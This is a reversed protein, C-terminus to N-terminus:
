AQPALAPGAPSLDFELELLQKSERFRPTGLKLPGVQGTLDVHGQKCCNLEWGEIKVMSLMAVEKPVPFADYIAKGWHGEAEGRTMEFVIVEVNERIKQNALQEIEAVEELTPRRDMQVTLRGHTGESHVSTTLRPGLVKVVAGKLVHVASHTRVQDQTM